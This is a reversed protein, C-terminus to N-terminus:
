LKEPLLTECPTSFEYECSHSTWQEGRLHSPVLWSQCWSLNIAGEFACVFEM